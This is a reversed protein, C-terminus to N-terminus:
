KLSPDPEFNQSNLRKYFSQTEQNALYKPFRHQSISPLLGKAPTTTTYNSLRTWSKCGWHVTAQWAGRDM